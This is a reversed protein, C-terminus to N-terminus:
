YVMKLFNFYARCSASVSLSWDASVYYMHDYDPLPQVQELFTSETMTPPLRRIVVQFRLKSM